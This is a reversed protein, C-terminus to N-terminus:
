IEMLDANGGKGLQFSNTASFATYTGSSNLQETYLASKFIQHGLEGYINLKYWKSIDATAEM